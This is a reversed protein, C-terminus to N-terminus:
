NHFTWRNLFDNDINNHHDDQDGEDDHGEAAAAGVRGIVCRRQVAGEKGKQRWDHGDDQRQDGLFNVTRQKGADDDAAQQVRAAIRLMGEVRDEVM